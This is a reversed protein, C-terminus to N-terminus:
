RRRTPARRRPWVRRRVSRRRLSGGWFEIGHGGDAPRGEHGVRNVAAVYVGNAIAHARQMTQWADLRRRASSPRRPPTGASRRRISSSRRRGRLATLRAGEPYWQDWCILTGIRGVRPTSPGSASIAPRSTSSRTSLASRRPHADQPLMGATAGDADLMVATNHYLAPRAGSSSRPSSSSAATERAVEALAAAADPGPIPEALDFCAHDERQCFYQSRFLEPLCVIQAGEQAAERVREVAKDLNEAASPGCRM